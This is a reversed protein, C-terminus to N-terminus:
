PVYIANRLQPDGCFCSEEGCFWEYEGPQCFTSTASPTPTSSPTSTVTTTSSPTPTVTPTGGGYVFSNEDSYLSWVDHQDQYRVKWYYTTGSTFTAGPVSISTVAGAVQDYVTGGSDRIVWQSAQFTDEADTDSFASGTLTVDSAASAFDTLRFLLFVTVLFLGLFVTIGLGKGRPTIDKERM